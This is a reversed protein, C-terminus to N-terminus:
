HMDMLHLMIDFREAACSFAAQAESNTFARFHSCSKGEFM